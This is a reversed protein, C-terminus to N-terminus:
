GREEVEYCVAEGGYFVIFIKNLESVVSLCNEKASGLSEIYKGLFFCLSSM